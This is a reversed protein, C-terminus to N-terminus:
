ERARLLDVLRAYSAPYELEREIARLREQWAEAEGPQVGGQRLRCSLPRASGLECSELGCRGVAADAEMGSAWLADPDERLCCGAQQPPYAAELEAYLVQLRERARERLEGPVIVAIGPCTARAAEFGAHTALVSEWYPFQRCHRPRSEYVMCTNRGLLLACRGGGSQEEVLSRRVTGARPDLVERVYRREFAAASMGLSQAM